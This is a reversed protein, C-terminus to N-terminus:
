AGASGYWGRWDTTGVSFRQTSKMKLNDTEFDNDRDLEVARRRKFKSGNKVDTVLFWADTDTLYPTDVPNIGMNSIINKDNDASGVAQQTELIKRATFYLQRPVLLTKVNAMIRKSQDDVYGMVDIIGQELSTQTLDAAVSPMNSATGGGILPHSANFISVQDATLATSFGNNINATAVVEELERMSRALQSPIQSIVNYQDDEVMERTVVAGISYTLNVYEKQFGQFMQAFYAEQGEEKIAAVPFGTVGQEKEFYKDSTEVTFFKTYRTDYNKYDNGWITAIGPWLLEAFNGTSHVFGSM